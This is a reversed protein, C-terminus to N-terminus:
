FCLNNALILQCLLFDFNSWIRLDSLSHNGYSYGNPTAPDSRAGSLMGTNKVNDSTDQRKSKKKKEKM